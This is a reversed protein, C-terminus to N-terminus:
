HVLVKFDADTNKGPSGRASEPAALREGIQVAFRQQFMNDVPDAGLRGAGQDDVGVIRFLVLSKTQRDDGVISPGFCTREGSHIRRHRPRSIDPKILDDRHGDILRMQWHVKDGSKQSGAGRGDGRGKPPRVWDVGQPGDIIKGRKIAIQGRSLTRHLAPGFATLCPDCFKLCRRFCNVWKQIHVCGIVKASGLLRGDGVSGFDCRWLSLCAGVDSRKLSRYPTTKLM